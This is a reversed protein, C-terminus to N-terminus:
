FFIKDIKIFTLNGIHEVVEESEESEDLSEPEGDMSPTQLGCGALVTACLFICALLTVAKKM